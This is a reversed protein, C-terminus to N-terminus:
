LFVPRAAQRLETACKVFKVDVDDAGVCWLRFATHFPRVASQLIPQNLLQPQAADARKVVRICKRGLEHSIEIGPEALLRTVRFVHMTRESIM